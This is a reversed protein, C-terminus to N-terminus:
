HRRRRRPVCTHYTRRSVIRRGDRLSAVIRITFTGKPLGRLDVTGHLRKRGRASVRRGNVYIAASRVRKRLHIRFHRRSACRRSSPLAAISSPPLTLAPARAVSAQRFDFCCEGDIQLPVNDAQAQPNTTSGQDHSTAFAYLGAEELLSADNPSGVDTAKVDITVTCPDSASPTKPCSVAGKEATGGSSAEPYTIVHPDCASVSCLDVSAAKGASFTPSGSSGQQMAAYYITNGMQWRLVYQTSQTGGVAGATASPHALDAVYFTAHLTGGSLSLEDGLLDYGPVDRGGIVPYLADGPADAQGGAPANSAGGVNGGFLGPGSRQRALTVVAAGAHDALQQNGPTFGPQSLGNSTDDYIIEAAGSRDTKVQFFDALNRNGQQEICDTGELCVDDYKMPHPSVKVLTKAPPAGTVAGSADTPWVLQSMFVNWRQGSKSSPDANKDSGYWVADARGPGGAQLWPMINVADGTAPSANSLQVPKSWSRWGSAASAVTTWVQRQSPAKNTPDDVVWALHLNRGQDMSAVPFLVDAGGPLHDAIHILKTPDGRAGDDLFSLNGSADPTGINLLLDFTKGDADQATDAQFVKGTQQDIAPYGDPGFPGANTQGAALANSYNLGDTSKTWAAGGISQSNYEQYVLPVPGTYPSQKTTGPPPDYVALWQRDAGPLGACGGPYAQQSVTAGGDTTVAERLCVLAYLDTFFQTGNRAFALDTDGGGPPSEFSTMASPMPNQQAIVRFTHGGDVSGFWVSRQTGTGTPGSSFVRGLPDVGVDPEGFTHIPDVVAPTEFTIPEAAARGALGLVLALCVFGVRRVSM